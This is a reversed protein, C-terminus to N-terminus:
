PFKTATFENKSVKWLFFCIPNFYIFVSGSLVKETNSLFTLCKIRKSNKQLLWYSVILIEDIIYRGSLVQLESSM